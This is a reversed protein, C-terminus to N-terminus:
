KLEISCKVGNLKVIKAPVGVVTCNDPVCRIVVANAGIAVNDGIRIKGLVKAGVGVYVNNGITPSGSKDLFGITVQQHVFFSSGIREASIITSFGHLIFFGGNINNCEIYLNNRGKYFVSYILAIFWSINSQKKLRFYILSRFEPFSSVLRLFSSFNKQSFSNAKVWFFLDEKFCRNKRLLLYIFWFPSYLLDRLLLALKIFFPQKSKEMEEGKARKCLSFHIAFVQKIM